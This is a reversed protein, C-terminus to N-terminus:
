RNPGYGSAIRNINKNKKEARRGPIGMGCKCGSWRDVWELHNQFPNSQSTDVKNAYKRGNEQALLEKTIIDDKSSINTEKEEADHADRTEKYDLANHNNGGHYDNNFKVHADDRHKHNKTNRANIEGNNNDPNCCTQPLFICQYLIYLYAISRTKHMSKFIHFARRSIHMRSVPTM